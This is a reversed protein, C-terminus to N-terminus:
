KGQGVWEDVNITDLMLTNLSEINALFIYFYHPMFTFLLLILVYITISM